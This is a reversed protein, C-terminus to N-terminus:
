GKVAVLDVRGSKSIKRTVSYGQRKLKREAVSVGYGLKLRSLKAGTLKELGYGGLFSDYRLVYGGPVKCVGIEYASRGIERKSADTARVVHDCTGWTAPDSDPVTDGMFRGFWTFSKLDRVLELGLEAAASALASLDTILISETVVHSM